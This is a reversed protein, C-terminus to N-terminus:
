EEEIVRKYLWKGDESSRHREVLNLWEFEHLRFRFEKYGCAPILKHCVKWLEDIHIYEDAPIHKLFERQNRSIRNVWALRRKEIAEILHQANKEDPLNEKIEETIDVLLSINKTDEKIDNLREKLYEQNKQADFLLASFQEAMFFKNAESFASISAEIDEMNLGKPISDVIRQLDNDSLSDVQGKLTEEFQEYVVEEIVSGVVPISKWLGKGLHYLFKQTREELENRTVL